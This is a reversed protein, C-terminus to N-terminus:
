VFRVHGSLVLNMLEQTCHGFTATLTASSDDMDKKVQDLSRTFVLSYRFRFLPVNVVPALAHFLCVSCFRFYSCSCCSALLTTGSHHLSGFVPTCAMLM